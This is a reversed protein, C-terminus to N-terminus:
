SRDAPFPVNTSRSLEAGAPFRIKQGGPHPRLRLRHGGRLLEEATRLTWSAVDVGDLPANGLLLAGV